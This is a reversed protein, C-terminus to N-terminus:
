KYSVTYVPTIVRGGPPVPSVHIAYKGATTGSSTITARSTIQPKTPSGGYRVEFGMVIEAGDPTVYVCRGETGQAVGSQGQALWNAASPGTLPSPPDITWKGWSMFQDKLILTLGPSDIKVQGKCQLSENNPTGTATGSTTESTEDM